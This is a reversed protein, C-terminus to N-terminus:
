PQKRGQEPARNMPVVTAPMQKPEAGGAAPQAAIAPSTPAVATAGEVKPSIQVAPPPAVAPKAAPETAPVPAVPQSAAAEPPVNPVTEALVAVPLPKVKIETAVHFWENSGQSGRRTQSRQTANQFLPSQELMEIVKSAAQAEGIMTVERVKGNVKLDFNQMSTTDPSIKALEELVVLPSYNAHKKGVIYNYEGALQSYEEYLRQSIQFEASAKDAIPNLAIVAERKQWVPLLVAILLLLLAALLLGLNLRLLNGWKRAPRAEPPLLDIATMDAENRDISIADVALGAARLQGLLLDVANRPAVALLVEVSDRTTDRKIIRADFYAQAATFPTHRDLEFGMVELLNEEVAAPLSLRRTLVQGDSLLLRVHARREGILERIAPHDSATAIPVSAYPSRKVPDQKLLTINVADMLVDISASEGVFWGTVQAPVLSKLEGMWWRWFDTAPRETAKVPLTVPMNSTITADNM